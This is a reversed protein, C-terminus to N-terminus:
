IKGRRKGVGSSYEGGGCKAAEGKKERKEKNTTEKKM